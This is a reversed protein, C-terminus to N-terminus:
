LWLELDSLISKIQQTYNGHQKGKWSRMSRLVEQDLLFENSDCGQVIFPKKTNLNEQIVLDSTEKATIKGIGQLLQISYM